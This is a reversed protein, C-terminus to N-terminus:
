PIALWGPDYPTENRTTTLNSKIDWVGNSFMSRVDVPHQVGGKKLGIIREKLQGMGQFSFADMSTNEDAVITNITAFDKSGKIEMSHIGGMLPTSAIKYSGQTGNTFGMASRMVKGKTKIDYQIEGWARARDMATPTDTSTEFYGTGSYSGSIEMNGTMPAKLGLSGEGMAGTEQILSFVAALILFLIWKRM